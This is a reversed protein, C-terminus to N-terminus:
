RTSGLPMLFLNDMYITFSLKKKFHHYGCTFFKVFNLLYWLGYSVRVFVVTSPLGISRFVSLCQNGFSDIYDSDSDKCVSTASVVFAM